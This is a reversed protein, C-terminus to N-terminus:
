VSVWTAKYSSNAWALSRGTGYDCTLDDASTFDNKGLWIYTQADTTVLRSMDAAELVTDSESLIKAIIKFRGLRGYAREHSAFWPSDGYMIAMNSPLTEGFTTNSTKEIVDADAVSPLETHLTATKTGDGNKVVRTAITLRSGYTVTKPTGARTLVTDTYDQMGAIEMYKNTDSESGNAPYPHGGVYADYTNGLDFKTTNNAYWWYAFFGAQQLPTVETIITWGTTSFLPLGDNEPHSIFLLYLNGDNSPYNNTPWLLEGTQVVGSSSQNTRSGVALASRRNRRLNLVSSIYHSAIRHM